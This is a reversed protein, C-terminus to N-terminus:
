LEEVGKYLEEYPKEGCLNIINNVLKAWEIDLDYHLSEFNKIFALTLSNKQIEGGGRGQETLEICSLLFSNILDNAEKVLALFQGSLKDIEESLNPREKKALNRLLEGSVCYYELQYWRKKLAQLFIERLAYFLNAVADEKFKFGYTLDYFNLNKDLLSDKVLKFYLGSHPIVRPSEIIVGLRFLKGLAYLYQVNERIDRITSYPEFVIYGIHINVGCKRLIDWATEVQNLNLLKNYRMLSQASANEVGLFVRVLGAKALSKIIEESPFPNCRLYIYLKINLKRKKIENCLKLIREDDKHSSWFIPDNFIFLTKGLREHIQEIEDVVLIPDRVMRKDGINLDHSLPVHCFSCSYYCGRSSELNVYNSDELEEIDRAPFPLENLSKILKRPAAVRIENIELIRWIGGPCDFNWKSCDDSLSNLLDLATEEPNGVIIGDLWRESKMIEQANLSAYPGCLFIRKVSGDNKARKLLPLLKSVDKFNPKAIIISYKEAEELIKLANDFGSRLLFCLKVNYGNQRLFSAISGMTVSAGSQSSLTRCFVLKVGKKENNKM